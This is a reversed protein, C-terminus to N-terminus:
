PAAVLQREFWADRGFAGDAHHTIVFGCREYFRIADHWTATTELVIRSIPPEHGRAVDVLADVIRRGVGAGRRSKEVSMRVIEATGHARPVITGTGIVSGDAGVAVLTTSGPYATELDDLDRNLTPDAATGWRDSLGALILSRVTDADGATLPRVTVEPTM